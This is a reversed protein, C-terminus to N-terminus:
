KICFVNDCKPFIYSPMKYDASNYFSNRYNFLTKYEPKIKDLVKQYDSMIPNIDFSWEFVMKKPLENKLIAKLIPIEAGEIDMKLCINPSIVKKYNICDVNFKQNGWNKYLSNRWTQNKNGVYMKMKKLNNAVVAKQHINFNGFGNILLNREIMKCNFPDPEYIDLFKIGKNLAMVAFAGVNGGLDIWSEGAEIKFGLKPREYTKNIVVENFTKEDSFGERCDFLIGKYELRKIKM